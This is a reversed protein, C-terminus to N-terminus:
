PPLLEMRFKCTVNEVPATPRVFTVWLKNGLMPPSDYTGVPQGIFVQYVSSGCVSGQFMGVTWGTQGTPVEYTVRYRRGPIVANSGWWDITIGAVVTGAYTPGVVPSAVNCFTGFNYPM